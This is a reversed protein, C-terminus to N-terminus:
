FEASWSEQTNELMQEVSIDGQLLSQLQTNM